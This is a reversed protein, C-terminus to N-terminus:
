TWCMDVFVKCIYLLLVVGVFFLTLGLYNMLDTMPVKKVAEIAGVWKNPGQLRWQCAGCSSMLLRWALGPFRLLSPKAGILEAIDDNYVLPDRQMTHGACNYYKYANKELEMASRMERESPLKVRGKCIEALWRAQMESMLIVGGSSPQVFGIFALSRGIDPSFVSKYLKITNHEDDLVVNRVRDELYPLDIKYGTCLIINDFEAQTGDMFMVKNDAIREINPVLVIERRQIHHVLTSSITPQTSLAKMNPNLNWKRPDGFVIKLVTEAIFNQLRWPLKFLFRCAYLDLPNGFIYNPAIWAGSRSSIYVPKCRGVTACHEAIDVASNGLGVVLVRSGTIGNSMADNFSVSHVIKGTFTEQGPFEVINPKAHHGSAIAVFKSRIVEEDESQKVTKGDDEVHKIHTLWIGDVREVKLVMKQFRIHERLGFHDVYDSIYQAMITNHPFDPVDDPFPFDSFCYNHKSVNVHTFSMVGYDHERFKWLGGVDATREVVVATLGADLLCKLTAVGSTGGGIVVADVDTTM